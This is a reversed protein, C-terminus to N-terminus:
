EDVSLTLPREVAGGVTLTGPHDPVSFNSRVYHLSTPTVSERLAEVPTEANFPEAKVMVLGSRDTGLTSGGMEDERSLIRAVCRHQRVGEQMRMVVLMGFRRGHQRRRFARPSLMPASETHKDDHTHLLADALM